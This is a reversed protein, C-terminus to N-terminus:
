DSISPQKIPAETDISQIMRHSPQDKPSRNIEMQGKSLGLGLVMQALLSEWSTVFGPSIAGSM